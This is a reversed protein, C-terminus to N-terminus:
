SYTNGELLYPISVRTARPIKPHGQSGLPSASGMEEGSCLDKDKLSQLPLLIPDKCTEQPKQFSPKTKALWAPDKCAKQLREFRRPIKALKGSVKCVKPTRQWGHLTEALRPDKYIVPPRQPAVAAISATPFISFGEQLAKPLVGVWQLTENPSSPPPCYHQQSTATADERYKCGM